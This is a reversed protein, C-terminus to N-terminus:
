GTKNQLYLFNASGNRHILSYGNELMLNHINTIRTFGRSSPANLEDFEVLIQSPFIKNKMCNVLVEIEAGEIDLKILPVTKIDLQPLNLTLSSM